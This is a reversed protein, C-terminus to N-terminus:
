EELKLNNLFENIKIFKKYQSEDMVEELNIGLIIAQKNLKEMCSFISMIIDIMGSSHHIISYEKFEDYNSESIDVCAKELMQPIIFYTDSENFLYEFVDNDEM